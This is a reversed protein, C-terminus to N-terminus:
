FDPENRKKEIEEEVDGMAKRAKGGKEQIAGKAKGSHDGFTESVDKKVKGKLEDLKGKLQDRNM